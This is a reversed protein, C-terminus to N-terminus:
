QRRHLKQLCNSKLTFHRNESVHTNLKRTRIYIPRAPLTQMFDTLKCAYLLDCASSLHLTLGDRRPQRAPPRGGGVVRVVAVLGQQLVETREHQVQPEVHGLQLVQDVADHMHLDVLLPLELGGPDVAALLALDLEHHIAAAFDPVIHELDQGDHPAVEVAECGM